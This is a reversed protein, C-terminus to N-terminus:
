DDLPDAGFNAHVLMWKGGNRVYVRTSKARINTLEGDASKTVGMYNYSLIAVDGYVQVKPNGMESFLGRDGTAANAEELKVLLSKGDIRTAFTPNFQTYERAWSKSAEKVNGDNLAAWEARALAVVEQAVAEDTQASVPSVLSAALALAGIVSFRTSKLM